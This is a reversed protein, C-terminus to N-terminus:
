ACDKRSPHDQIIKLLEEWGALVVNIENPFSWVLPLYDKYGWPFAGYCGAFRREWSHSQGSLVTNTVWGTISTIPLGLPLFYSM